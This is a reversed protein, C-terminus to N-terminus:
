SKGGADPLRGGQALSNYDRFNRVTLTGASLRLLSIALASMTRWQSEAAIYDPFRFPWILVRSRHVPTAMTSDDFTM